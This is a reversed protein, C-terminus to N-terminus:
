HAETVAVYAIQQRGQHAHEDRQAKRQDIHGDGEVGPKGVVHAHDGSALIAPPRLRPVVLDVQNREEGQQRQPQSEHLAQASTHLSSLAPWVHAVCALVCGGNDNNRIASILRYTNDVHVGEMSSKEHNLIIM